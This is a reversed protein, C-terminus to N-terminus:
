ATQALTNLHRIFQNRSRDHKFLSELYGYQDARLDEVGYDSGNPILLGKSHAWRLYAITDIRYNNLYRNIQAAQEPSLRIDTSDGKVDEVDDVGNSEQSADQPEDQPQGEAENTQTQPDTQNEQQAEAAGSEVLSLFDDATGTWIQPVWKLPCRQSYEDPRSDWIYERLEDDYRAEVTPVLQSPLKRSSSGLGAPVIMQIRGVEMADSRAIIISPLGSRQIAKVLTLGWQMIPRYEDISLKRGIQVNPNGSEHILIWNALAETLETYSDLVIRTFGRKTISPDALQECIRLLDACSEPVVVVADPNLTLVHAEAKPETCIVLPKGGELSRTTKGTGTLGHLLMSARTKRAPPKTSSFTRM